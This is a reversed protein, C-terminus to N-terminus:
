VWLTKVMIKTIPLFTPSQKYIENYLEYQFVDIFEQLLQGYVKLKNKVSTVVRCYFQCTELPTSLLPRPVHLAVHYTPVHM